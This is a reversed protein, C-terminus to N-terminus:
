SFWRKAVGVGLANKACKFKDTIFGQSWYCRLTYALVACAAKRYETPWYQGTTYDWEEGNWTLRGSFAVKAANGLEEPTIQSRWVYFLMAEADRKDRTITRLEARYIAADGYNVFELRPRQRIFRHLKELMNALQEKQTDTNM